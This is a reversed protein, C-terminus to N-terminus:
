PGVAQVNAWTGTNSSGFWIGPNGVSTIDMYISLPCTPLAPPNGLGTTLCTALSGGGTQLLECALQVQAAMLEFPLRNLWCKADALIANPSTDAMPNLLKLLQSYIEVLAAQLEFPNRAFWCSSASIVSDPNCTAM